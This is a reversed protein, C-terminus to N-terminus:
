FGNWDDNPRAGYGFVLQRLGCGCLLAASMVFVAVFGGPKVHTPGGERWHVRAAGLVIAVIVCVFSAVLMLRAILKLRENASGRLDQRAAREQDQKQQWARTRAELDRERAELDREHAVLARADMANLASEAADLPEHKMSLAKIHAVMAIFEDLSLASDHNKDYKALISQKMATLQERNIPRLDGFLSRVLKTLLQDIESMELVGSGDKDCQTFLEVLTAKEEDGFTDVEWTPERQLSPAIWELM